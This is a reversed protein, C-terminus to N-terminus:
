KGRREFGKKELQQIFNTTHQTGVVYEPYLSTKNKTEKMAGHEMFTWTTNKKTYSVTM